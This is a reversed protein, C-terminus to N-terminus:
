INELIKSKGVEEFDITVNEEQIAEQEEEAKKKKKLADEETKEEEEDVGGKKKTKTESTQGAVTNSADIESM